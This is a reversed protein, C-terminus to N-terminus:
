MKFWLILLLCVLLLELTVPRSSSGQVVALALLSITHNDERKAYELALNKMKGGKARADIISNSCGFGRKTPDNRDLADETIGHELINRKLVKCWALADCDDTIDPTSALIADRVKRRDADALYHHAM